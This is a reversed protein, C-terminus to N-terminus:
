DTCINYKRMKSLEGYKKMRGVQTLDADTYGLFDRGCAMVHEMAKRAKLPCDLSRLLAVLEENNLDPVQRWKMFSGASELTPGSLRRSKQYVTQTIERPKEPSTPSKRGVHVAGEGMNM